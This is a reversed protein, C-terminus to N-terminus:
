SYTRDITEQIIKHLQNIGFPIKLFNINYAECLVEADPTMDRAVFIFHKAINPTIEIAKQFFDIGSMVPMNIDTIVLNFFNNRVKKLAEQGNSATETSGFTELAQSMFIQIPLKDEVILLKEKGVTPLQQIVDSLDLVDSHKNLFRKIKEIHSQMILAINKIEKEQKQFMNMVYQFIHNLEAFEVTVIVKMVAQKTIGPAAKIRKFLNQLPIVVRDKTRQDVIIDSQPSVEQQLFRNEAEKLLKFHTDEDDALSALFTGFEKDKSFKEAASRYVDGALKELDLLWDIVEKM